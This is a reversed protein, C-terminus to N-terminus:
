FNSVHRIESWSYVEYKYSSAVRIVSFRTIVRCDVM